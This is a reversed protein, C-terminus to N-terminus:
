AVPSFFCRGNATGLAIKGEAVEVVVTYSLQVSNQCHELRNWSTDANVVLMLQSKMSFVEVM